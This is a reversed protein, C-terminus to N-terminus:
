LGAPDFGTAAKIGATLVGCRFNAEIAGVTQNFTPSDGVEM